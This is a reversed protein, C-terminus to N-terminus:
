TQNDNDKNKTRNLDLQSLIIALFVIVCGLYERVSMKEGLFIAGGIIGFVSELSLIISAVTPEVSKQGIIQLTYAIGSSCIGLFLLSPFATGIASASIPREFILALLTNIVFSTAFQVLSMRVGDCGVSLRDVAIIHCAFILACVLILADSGEMKVGPKLCLFYFGIIAIPVSILANLSPKKGLLASFIPVIVVYMATIFAAKGADTDQLGTQQFATAVSLIIGIVIGGILESRNIDILTKKSILHRGTKTIRDTLPIVCILFVVAFISRVSGVTFAPLISAEKQATFAFGWLITAILFLLSSLYKKM